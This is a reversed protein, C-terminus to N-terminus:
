WEVKSWNAQTDKLILNLFYDPSGMNGRSLWLEYLGQKSETGYGSYGGIDSIYSDSSNPNVQSGDEYSEIGKQILYILECDNAMIIDYMMEHDTQESQCYGGGLRFRKQLLLKDANKIFASEAEERMSSITPHIITQSTM